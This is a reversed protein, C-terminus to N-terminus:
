QDTPTVGASPPTGIEVDPPLFAIAVVDRDNPVYDAPNGTQEQGNVSWRVQGPKNELNECTDGNKFKEGGVDLETASIKDGAQKFFLGVKGNKGAGASSYPHLHILGDGHSHIGTAAEYPPTSPQWTGCFNVGVAAHWHDGIRVGPGADEEGGGRSLAIGAIGLVVIAVIAVTFGMGGRRANVKVPSKKRSAKGM